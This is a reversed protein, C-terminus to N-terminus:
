SFHLFSAHFSSIGYLTVWYFYKTGYVGEKKHCYISKHPTRKVYSSAPRNSLGRNDCAVKDLLPFEPGGRAVIKRYKNLDGQTEM